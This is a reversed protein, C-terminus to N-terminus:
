YVIKLFGVEYYNCINKCNGGSADLNLAKKAADILAAGSICDINILFIRIAKRKPKIPCSYYRTIIRQLAL